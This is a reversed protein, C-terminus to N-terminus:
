VNEVECSFQYGGGWITKIFCPKKPDPEIKKRLRSILTDISRDYVDGGRGKALNLLVERSLVVHPHSVFAHLLSFETSTLSILCNDPSILERTTTDLSWSAFLYRVPSDAEAIDGSAAPISYHRRLVAKIRALLERPNFPKALYDDAGLELGVIKDLEEALATLMIVPVNSVARLERCLTLGDKGPMMLDLVILDVSHHKLFVEMEHGDAATQVRYGHQTLFRKLLNRIDAHDDVVLIRNNSEM